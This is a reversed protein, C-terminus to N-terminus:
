ESKILRHKALITKLKAYEQSNKFSVLEREPLIRLVNLTIKGLQKIDERCPEHPDHEEMPEQDRIDDATFFKKVRTMFGSKQAPMTPEEDPMQEEVYEDQTPAPEPAPKSELYTYDSQSSRRKIYTNMYKNFEPEPM